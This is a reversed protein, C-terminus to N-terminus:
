AATLPPALEVWRAGLKDLLWAPPPDQPALLPATMDARWGDPRVVDVLLPTADPLVQVGPALSRGKRISAAQQVGPTLLPKDSAVCVACTCSAGQGYQPAHLWTHAVPWIMTVPQEAAENVRGVLLDTTARAIAATGRAVVTRSQPGRPALWRQMVIRGCDRGERRETTRGDDDVEVRVDVANENMWSRWAALSDARVALLSLSGVVQPGSLLAVGDAKHAEWHDVVEAVSRFPGVGPRPELTAADVPVVPYGLTRVMAAASQVSPVQPGASGMWSSMVAVQEWAAEEVDYLPAPQSEYLSQASLQHERARDVALEADINLVHSRGFVFSM